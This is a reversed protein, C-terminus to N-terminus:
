ECNTLLPKVVYDMQINVVIAESVDEVCVSNAVYPGFSVGSIPSKIAKRLSTQKAQADRQQRLAQTEAQQMKELLTNNFDTQQSLQDALRKLEGRSLEGDGDQDNAALVENASISGDRNTDLSALGGPDQFAAAVDQPLPAPPPGGRQKQQQQEASTSWRRLSEPLPTALANSGPMSAMTRFSSM